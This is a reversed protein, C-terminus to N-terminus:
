ELQRTQCMVHSQQVYTSVAVQFVDILMIIYKKLWWLSSLSLLPLSLTVVVMVPESFLWQVIVVMVILLPFLFWSLFSVFPM